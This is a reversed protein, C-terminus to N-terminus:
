AQVANEPHLSRVIVPRGSDFLAAEVIKEEIASSEPEAQGVVSLDFHGHLVASSTALALSIPAPRSRARWLARFQRAFRLGAVAEGLIELGDFISWRSILVQNSALATL